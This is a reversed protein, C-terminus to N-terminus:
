EEVPESYCYAVLKRSGIKKNTKIANPVLKMNAAVKSRSIAEDEPIGVNIAGAIEDATMPETSLVNAIRAVLEEKDAASKAARRAAAKENKKDILGVEGRIFDALEENTLTTVREADELIAIIEAFKIRKIITTNEM